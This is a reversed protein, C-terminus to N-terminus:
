KIKAAEFFEVWQDIKLEEAAEKIIQTHDYPSVWVSQQIQSFELRRLLNRFRRRAANFEVPVDFIVMLYGAKAVQQTVFPQLYQRGKITVKPSDQSSIYQQKKLRLYTQRLTRRSFGSSRELEDFFQTPQFVLQLNEKSYPILAMLLHAAVTKTKKNSDM